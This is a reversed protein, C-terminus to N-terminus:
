IIQGIPRYGAKHLDEALELGERGHLGKASIMQYLQKQNM